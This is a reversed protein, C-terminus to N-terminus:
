WCEHGWPCPTLPPACCEQAWAVEPCILLWLPKGMSVGEPHSVRVGEVLTLEVTSGLRPLVMSEFVFNRQSLETFSSCV